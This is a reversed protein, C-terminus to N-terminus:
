PKTRVAPIITFTFNKMGAERFRRSYTIVFDLSNTYWEVDVPYGKSYKLAQNITNQVAGHAFVRRLNPNYISEAWNGIYKAEVGRQDDSIESNLIGDPELEGLERAPFVPEAGAYTNVADSYSKAM